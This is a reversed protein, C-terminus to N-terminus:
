CTYKSFKGLCVARAGKKEGCFATYKMIFYHYKCSTASFKFKWGQHWLTLCALALLATTLPKSSLLPVVCHWIESCIIVPSITEFQSVRNHVLNCGSHLIM